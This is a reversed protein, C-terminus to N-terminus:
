REVFVEITQRGWDLAAQHDNMFIDIRNGQIAGGTDQV